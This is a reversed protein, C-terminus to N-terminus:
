RASRGVTLEVPVELVYEKEGAGKYTVEIKGSYVSDPLDSSVFIRYELRAAQGQIIEKGDWGPGPKTMFDFEGSIVEFEKQGKLATPKISAIIAAPSDPGLELTIFGEIWGDKEAKLALEVPNASVLPRKEEPQAVATGGEPEVVATIRVDRPALAAGRVSIRVKGSYQGPTCNQPVSVVLTRRGPQGEVPELTMPIAAQGVLSEAAVDLDLSPETGFELEKRVTEGPKLMGLDADGIGRYIVLNYTVPVTKEFKLEGQAAASATIRIDARGPGPGASRLLGGLTATFQMPKDKMSMATQPSVEMGQGAGAAEVKLSQSARSTVTVKAAAQSDDAWLMGLDVEAPSVQFLPPSAPTVIFSAYRELTWSLDKDELVLTIKATFAEEKGPATTLMRVGTEYEVRNGSMSFDTLLMEAVTKGTSESLVSASVKAKEMFLKLNAKNETELSLALRLPEGEKVAGQLASTSLRVVMPADLFMLEDVAEGSAKAEYAGPVAKDLHVVHFFGESMYNPAGEGAPMAVAKGSQKIESLATKGGRATLAVVLSSSGPLLSNPKRFGRCIMRHNIEASVSSLSTLLNEPKEVKFIAGRTMVAMKELLPMHGTPALVVPFVRWGNATYRRLIETIESEEGVPKEKGGTIFVVYSDGTDNFTKLLDGALNLADTYRSEGGVPMEDILKFMERRNDEARVSQTLSLVSAPFRCTVLGINDEKNLTSLLFKSGERVYGQPDWEEPGSSNDVILVVVKGFVNVTQMSSDPEDLTECSQVAGFAAALLFYAFLRHKM